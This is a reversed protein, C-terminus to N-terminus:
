FNDLFTPLQRILEKWYILRDNRAISKALLYWFIPKRSQRPRFLFSSNCISSEKVSEFKATGGPSSTLQSHCKLTNKIIIWCTVPVWRLTVLMLTIFTHTHICQGCYDRMAVGSLIERLANDGTHYTIRLLIIAVVVLINGRIESIGQHFKSINCRTPAINYWNDSNVSCDKFHFLISAYITYEGYISDIISTFSIGSPFILNSYIYWGLYYM